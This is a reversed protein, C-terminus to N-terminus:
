GEKCARPSRNSSTGRVVLSSEAYGWGLPLTWPDGDAPLVETFVEPSVFVLWLDSFSLFTGETAGRSPM